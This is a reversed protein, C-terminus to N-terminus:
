EFRELIEERPAGWGSLQAYASTFAAIIVASSILSVVSGWVLPAANAALTEGLTAGPMIEPVSGLNVSLDSGLILSGIAAFAVMLILLVLLLGFLKLGSGRALRWSGRLGLREDVTVAPFVLSLRAMAYVLVLGIGILAAILLSTFDFGESTSNDNYGAALLGLVVLVVISLITAVLMLLSYGLYIWTRRAFVPQPLFQAEEKLLIMRGMGIALLTYPILDLLLFALDSGPLSLSAPIKAFTLALALILPVLALKLFRGPQGFVSRLAVSIAKGFSFGLSNAEESIATM